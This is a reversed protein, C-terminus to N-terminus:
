KTVYTARMRWTLPYLWPWFSLSQYHSQLRKCSTDGFTISLFEPQWNSLNVMYGVTGSLALLFALELWSLRFSARKVGIMLPTTFSTSFPPRIYLLQNMGGHCLHVRLPLNSLLVHIRKVRENVLILTDFQYSIPWTGGWGILWKPIEWKACDEIKDQKRGMAKWNSPRPSSIPVM